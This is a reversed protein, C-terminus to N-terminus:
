KMLAIDTSKLTIEGDHGGAVFMEKDTIRACICDYRQTPLDGVKVWKGTCPQYLHIATVTSKCDKNRGGVAILSGSISLPTSYVLQLGSIESWMPSKNKRKEKSTLGSTLASLSVTYSCRTQLIGLSSAVLPIACTM